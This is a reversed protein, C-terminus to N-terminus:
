SCDVWPHLQGCHLCTFVFVSPELGHAREHGESKAVADVWQQDLHHEALFDAPLAGIEEATVTGLFGCADDCCLPWVEEQYSNFGPTRTMLEDLRDAALDIGRGPYAVFEAEYRVAASGDAICWPCLDEVVDVAYPTGAYAWGTAEGCCPCVLGALPKIAGTAVPDPHYRFVPLEWQPRPISGPPPERRRGITAPDIGPELPAGDRTQRWLLPSLHGPAEPDPLLVLRKREDYAHAVVVAAPAQPAELRLKRTHYAIDAGTRSQRKRDSTDMVPLFRWSEGTQGAYDNLMWGNEGGLRERLWIPLSVGISAECAAIDAPSVGM